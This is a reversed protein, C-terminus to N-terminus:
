LGKLQRAIEYSPINKDATSCDAEALDAYATGAYIYCVYLQEDISEERVYPVSIKDSRVRLYKQPHDAEWDKDCVMLGDWRKRIETSKFKFM